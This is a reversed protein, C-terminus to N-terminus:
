HQKRPQEQLHQQPPSPSFIDTLLKEETINNRITTEFELQILHSLEKIIRDNNEIKDDLTGLIDVMPM